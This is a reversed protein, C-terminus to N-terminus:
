GLSKRKIQEIDQQLQYNSNLDLKIKDCAHIVTSHDRGGFEKGIQPHTTGLLDRCLYMAIQRPHSIFRDKRKNKLDEVSIQFYDAVTRQILSISLRPKEAEPPLIDRLAEKASEIEMHELNNVNASYIVKNLAGELERINSRIKGAIYFVVEESVIVRESAAKRQLIACRTEFDPPQIDTILGGEFRSRLREELTEIEKPPRDSSIVIQKGAEHLANFTYFFEEQIGEKGTLFQIDDILFVDTYRYRNKFTHAKGTRVLSIFENTFTETSVYAVKKQPSVKLVSQGIAHMLHTKGLGSDGYIFLPNYTRSPREAVAIAAAHAFRNSPGVVFSDFNYRSNFMATQPPDPLQMSSQNHSHNNQPGPLDSADIFIVSLQEGAVTSLASEVLHTLTQEMYAQAYEDSVYIYVQNEQRKVNAITTTSFWTDFSAQKLDMRILELAQPWIQEM